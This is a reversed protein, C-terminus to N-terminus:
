IFWKWPKLILCVLGLNILCVVVLYANRLTIKQKLQDIATKLNLIAKDKESIIRQKEELEKERSEALKDSEKALETVVRLQTETEQTHAVTERASVEVNKVSADAPHNTVALKALELTKEASNKSLVAQETVREIKPSMKPVVIARPPPTQACGMMLLVILLYKKM